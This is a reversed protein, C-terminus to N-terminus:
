PLAFVVQYGDAARVVVVVSLKAGRLAEGAPAGLRRVLDGLAVGEYRAPEKSGHVEVRASTRMLGVLSGPSLRTVEQALASSGLVPVLISMLLLRLRAAPM